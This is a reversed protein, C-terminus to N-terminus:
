CSRLVPSAVTVTVKWGGSNGAPGDSVVWSASYLAQKLGTYMEVHIRTSKSRGVTRM